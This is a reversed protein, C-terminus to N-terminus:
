LVDLLKVKAGLFGAGPAFPAPFLLFRPTLYRQRDRIMSRRCPPLSCAGFPVPSLSLSSRAHGPLRHQRNGVRDRLAKHKRGPRAAVAGRDALLLEADPLRR